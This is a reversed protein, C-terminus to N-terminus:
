LKSLAEDVSDFSVLFQDVRAVRFLTRIREHAGIVAYKTGRSECSVHLGIVCGLTASDMYPVAALHLLTIPASDGQLLPKLEFLEKLTCPGSLYIIRVGERPGPIVEAKFTELM